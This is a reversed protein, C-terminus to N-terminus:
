AALKVRATPTDRIMLNVVFAFVGLLISLWWTLDYSQTADFILGSAYVGIFSGVQHSFFV